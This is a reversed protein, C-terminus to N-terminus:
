REEWSDTSESTEKMLNKVPILQWIVVKKSAAWHQEFNRIWQISSFYRYLTKYHCKIWFRVALKGGLKISDERNEHTKPVVGALHSRDVSKASRSIICRVSRSLMESNKFFFNFNKFNEFRSDSHSLCYLSTLFQNYIWLFKIIWLKHVM